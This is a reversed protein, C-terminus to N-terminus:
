MLTCIHQLLVGNERNACFDCRAWKKENQGDLLTEGNERKEHAEGPEGVVATADTSLGM